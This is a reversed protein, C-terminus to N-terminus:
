SSSRVLASAASSLASRSSSASLRGISSSGSAGAILFALNSGVRAALPIKSVLSVSFRTLRNAKSVSCGVGVAGALIEQATIM